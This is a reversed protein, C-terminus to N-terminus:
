WGSRLALWRSQPPWPEEESAKEAAVRDSKRPMRTVRPFDRGQALQRDRRGLLLRRGASLQADM